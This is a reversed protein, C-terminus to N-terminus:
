ETKEETAAKAAINKDNEAINAAVDDKSEIISMVAEFAVYAVILALGIVIKDKGFLDGISVALMCLLFVPCLHKIMLHFIKKSKFKGNIEVEQDIYAVKVIYGIFICTLVAALPMMFTNTISDFIGLWGAGQDLAPINTMWPGFGLVSVMGLLILLVASLGISVKRRLAAGDIFVSIVTELLSVASTLAAFMVLLYFIPAIITGATGMMTFVQPLTVFMLGMGKSDGFAEGGLAFSAPVIMLGALIAVVTDIVSVNRASKEINVDKKMYSGYTIMIGMALSMSYFIQSIAGLFTQSSLKSVDPNLYYVIGDWINPITFTYIIIGIMMIFLLPMLIKSVKEIGKDVGIIVCLLCIAAFVIFWISPDVFGGENGTIYNWWYAGQNDSLLSLHGSISEGFWKTVWGGIVCYYPVILLPIIAILWGFWKHKKSLDGFAHICSKGTRRGLAIEAVMLSFGFTVALIIYVLVFIGGGYHSTLYPFRWLNGLGVASAAAAMVFGLRGSFSGRTETGSM